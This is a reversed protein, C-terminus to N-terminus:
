CFFSMGDKAATSTNMRGQFIRTAKGTGSISGQMRQYEASECGPDVPHCFWSLAPFRSHEDDSSQTHRVDRVLELSDAAFVM